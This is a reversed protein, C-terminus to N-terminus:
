KKAAGTGRSPKVPPKVRWDVTGLTLAEDLSILADEIGAASRWATREQDRDSLCVKTVGGELFVTLTARQRVQGDPYSDATLYEMVAPLDALVGTVPGAPSALM